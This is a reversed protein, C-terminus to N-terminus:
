IYMVSSQLLLLLQIWGAFLLLSVKVHWQLCSNKEISFSGFLLLLLLRTLDLLVLTLARLM